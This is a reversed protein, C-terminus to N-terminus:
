QVAEAYRRRNVLVRLRDELAMGGDCKKRFWRMDDNVQIPSRYLLYPDADGYRNPRTGAISASRFRERVAADAVPSPSLAKPYAFDLPVKGLKSTILDISTDLERAVENNALRDLLAHSHTHSGVDMLGTSVCDALAQWSLPKGNDPFDEGNEVFRTALYLTSPIGFEQMIPMAIDAIDATGDDFTIAIPSEITQAPQESGRSPELRRLADSLSVVRGSESLEAMQRRFLDAPLDVAMSTRGGVRHYILVVVGPHRPTIADYGAALSKVIKQAIRAM